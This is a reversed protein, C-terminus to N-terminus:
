KVIASIIDIDREAPKKDSRAQRQSNSASKNTQRKATTAVPRTKQETRQSAKERVPKSVLAATQSAVVGGIVLEEQLAALANSQKTAEVIEDSATPSTRILAAGGEENMPTPSSAPPPQLSPSVPADTAVAVPSITGEGKGDFANGLYIWLMGAFLLLLASAWTTLRSSAARSPSPIRANEPDLDNLISM